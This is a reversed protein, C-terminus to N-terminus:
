RFVRHELGVQLFRQIDIICEIDLIQYLFCELGPLVFAEPPQRFLGAAGFVYRADRKQVLDRLEDVTTCAIMRARFEDDYLFQCVRSLLQLHQNTEGVPGALLCVIRVPLEEGFDLSRDLVAIVIGTESVLDSHIHPVACEHGIATSSLEERSLLGDLLKEHDETRCKSGLAPLM